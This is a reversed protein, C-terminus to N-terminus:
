NVGAESYVDQRALPVFSVVAGVAQRGPKGQCGLVPYIKRKSPRDAGKSTRRLPFQASFRPQKITLFIMWHTGM